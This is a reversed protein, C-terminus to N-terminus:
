LEVWVENGRVECSFTSIFEGRITSCKGDTLRFRWRHLPCVLEGEEIWGKDLPGRAHPCYASVARITEGSRILTIRIGKLEIGLPQNEPFSDLSGAM